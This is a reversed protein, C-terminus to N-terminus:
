SDAGGAVDVSYNHKVMIGTLPFEDRESGNASKRADVLVVDDGEYQSNYGSTGSCQSPKSPGGRYGSSPNQSGYRKRLNSFTLSARTFLARYTPLCACIIATGLHINLWVADLILDILLVNPVYSVVIRVIGTIIVLGGLMFIVSLLLKNKMSLQLNIIERVPLILIVIDLLLEVLMMVFWFTSYWVCTGPEGTWFSSVPACPYAEVITGPILWLVNVVILCLSITPLRGPPTQVKLFLGFRPDAMSSANDGNYFAYIELGTSTYFLVLAALLCWDDKRIGSKVSAKTLFRLGVALGTLPIFVGATAYIATAQNHVEVLYNEM